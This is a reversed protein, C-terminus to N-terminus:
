GRTVVRRGALHRVRLVLLGLGVLVAALLGLSGADSGTTALPAAATPAAPDALVVVGTSLSRVAGDTGVGNM